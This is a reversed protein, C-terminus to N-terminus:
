RGLLFRLFASMAWARTHESRICEFPFGMVLTSYREGRYAIGAPQGNSYAFAPFAAKDTPRIADPHVAAYHEENPHLFVPIQLGLGTIEESVDADATGDFCYKLVNEAFGREEKSQLDSGVYAGSVLLSGGDRAFASLCARTPADFVKFPRLNYPVNRELGAIYDVVAYRRSVVAMECFAARSCSSYSYPGAAAIAKGHAEPYNFTNGSFLRGEWSSASYGLGGPGEVGAASRNFDVQPGCFAASYLYPVGPDASLNFGLSDPTDVPAPGSLRTFGNVILVEAESQPARYVALTESPFSEGGANVASVRFAYRVGPRVPLQVATDGNVLVGNDFDGDDEKTYLVYATPLADPELPDAQPRWSLSVMRGDPSLLASFHSVPLPQVQAEALGHEHAVFRLIGKYLSRALTFKFLPDHGYRLDAFNQHSLMEVIASPVDPSRTEGYNRDWLERRPWRVGFAASLDGTVSSLLLAALDRSAKRSLGSSFDFFGRADATTCIGLTGYIREDEYFGADSHLALSLEFPVGGGPRGPQYPSGGGLYNLMYSRARIDDVYDNTGGTTNYVESPLGSWQAHYRAAELFRPLGSTGAPVRAVRGMGGGFRVADASVVGRYDSQNTLVVRNERPRGAAFEFTGLYVWTGGGMQQNVRFLTRGGKHYVVYRADSVSNPRSVYSVYVAYRGDCPLDPTWTATSLRTRRSTTFIERARGTRFPNDGDRLPAAPLSFASDPSDQWAYGATAAEAYRGGGTSFDNDVIAENRQVDRERPSCVVAGANELMPFLYPFVISQTFLDETTCYIYPRQWVWQQKENKFYRGHSPWIFLHRGALGRTVTYPLSLNTVWPNGTYGISGWLRSRDEDGSRFLNPVLESVDHGNGDLITLYYANYPQPLSFSLRERLTALGDSTFPQSCFAENAYLRLSRNKEDVRFSDVRMRDRPHYDPVDYSSFFRDLALRLRKEEDGQSVACLPVLGLLWWIHARFRM